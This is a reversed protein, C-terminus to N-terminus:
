APCPVPSKIFHDDEKKSTGTTRTAAYEKTHLTLAGVFSKRGQPNFIEEKWHLLPLLHTLHGQSKFEFPRQKHKAAPPQTWKWGGGEGRVYPLSPGIEGVGEEKSIDAVISVVVLLNPTVQHALM